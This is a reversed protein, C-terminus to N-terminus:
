SANIINYDDSENGDKDDKDESVDNNDKDNDEDYNQQRFREGCKDKLSDKDNGDGCKDNVSEEDNISEDDFSENNSSEVNSENSTAPGQLVIIKSTIRTILMMTTSPEMAIM